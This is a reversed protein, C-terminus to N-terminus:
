PQNNKLTKQDDNFIEKADHWGDERGKKYGSDYGHNYGCNYAKVYIGSLIDKIEESFDLEEHNEEDTKM